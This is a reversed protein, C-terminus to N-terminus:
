EEVTGWADNFSDTSYNVGLVDAAVGLDELETIEEIYGLPDELVLEIYAALTTREADPESEEVINHGHTSMAVILNWRHPPPEASLVVPKLKQVTTDLDLAQIAVLRRILPFRRDAVM